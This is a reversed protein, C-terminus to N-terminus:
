LGMAFTKSTGETGATDAGWLHTLTIATSSKALALGNGIAGPLGATLTIVGSAASATCIGTFSSSSNILAAVAAATATASAGINVQNGTAGSDVLTIVVNGVTLTDNATGVGTFTVTALAFVPNFKLVLNAAMAGQAGRDLHSACRRLMTPSDMPGKFGTPDIGNTDDTLYWLNKSAM